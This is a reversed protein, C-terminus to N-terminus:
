KATYAGDVPLNVGSIYASDDSALFLAANAMDNPQGLRKLPINDTFKKRNEDLDDDQNRKLFQNMMPTETLGPCISNVRINKDGLNVAMARVLNVVAGKAAAYVPSLPSAVLGSISATFIISGGKNEMLPLAYKTTFFGSKVNLMMAFDYDEEEVQQIGSPGPIGVHNWLVDIRGYQHNIKEITDKIASLDSLDTHFYNAQGGSDRIEKVVQEGGERNIDLINVIAGEKAFLVAGAKGMGSAAASIVAVKNALKMKFEGRKYQDIEIHLNYFIYKL